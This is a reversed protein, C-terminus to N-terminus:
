TCYTCTCITCVPAFMKCRMYRCSFGRQTPVTKQEQGDFYLVRQSELGRACSAILCPSMKMTSRGQQCLRSIKDKAKAFLQTECGWGLSVMRVPGAECVTRYRSPWHPHTQHYRPTESGDMANPAVNMSPLSSSKM